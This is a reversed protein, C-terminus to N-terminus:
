YSNLAWQFVRTGGTTLDLIEMNEHVTCKNRAIGVTFKLM